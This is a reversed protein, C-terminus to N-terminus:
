IAVTPENAVKIAEPLSLNGNYLSKGCIVGFIHRNRLTIIDEIDKVGGSAVIRAGYLAVKNALQRTAEHNVGSLAGDKEIDTFVFYKVGLKANEVAFEEYNLETKETWGNVAIKGDRADIGVVVRAGYDGVAYKVLKPSNVAATGLIVRFAGHSLYDEIDDITRIGGGVNIHIKSQKIVELIVDKNNKNPTKAADLDVIHICTAGDEEFKRATALVDDAVKGATAYDGKYLRVPVGDIIDIAPIVIM